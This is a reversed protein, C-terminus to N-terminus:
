REERYVKIVTAWPRMAVDARNYIMVGVPRGKLLEFLRNVNEYVKVGQDTAITVASDAALAAASRNMITVETTVPEGTLRLQCPWPKCVTVVIRRVLPPVGSACLSLLVCIFGWMVPGRPDDGIWGGLEQQERLEASQRAGEKELEAIRDPDPRVTIGGM